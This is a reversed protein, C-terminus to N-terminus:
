WVSLISEIMSGGKESKVIKSIGMPILGCITIATTTTNIDLKTSNLKRGAKATYLVSHTVAM